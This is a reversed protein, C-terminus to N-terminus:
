RRRFALFGFGLLGFLASSPEPIADGIELGNIFVNHSASPSSAAVVGTLTLAGTADTTADFSVNYDSLSTPDPGGPFTLTGSGGGGSAVHVLQPSGCM